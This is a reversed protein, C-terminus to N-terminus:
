QSGQGVPPPDVGASDQLEPSGTVESRRINDPDGLFEFHMTDQLRDHGLWYFGFREFVHVWCSPMKMRDYISKAPRKCLPHDGWQAVCGCCTNQLPDVDIAIGYVHNSVEGTHYTNKERLGSLRDPQYPTAKCEDRIQEEVCELAPIIRENLRVRKGFFTTWRTYHSPAHPNWSRKGFGKFYGYMKTRYEISKDHIAKRARREDASLKGRMVFNKRVLFDQPDQYNCKTKNPPRPPADMPDPALTPRRRGESGAPAAALLLALLASGAALSAFVYRASNKM